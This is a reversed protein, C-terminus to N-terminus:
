STGSTRASSWPWEEIFGVLGASVPNFEIYRVIRHYEDENRVWHDYSEHQWFTEGKRGLIQSAEYATYGKIWQTVKGLPVLAQLLVHVHNPMVVFASLRPLKRNESLRLANVVTGAILPDKLWQPGSTAQDLVRDIRRFAQDPTEEALRSHVYSPLSGELRWTVFLLTGNPHWHPLDRRYYTKNEQCALAHGM